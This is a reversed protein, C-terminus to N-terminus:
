NRPESDGASSLLSSRRSRPSRTSRRRLGVGLGTPSRRRPPWYSPPLRRPLAISCLMSPWGPAPHGHVRPAIVCSRLSGHLGFRIVIRNSLRGHLDAELDRRDGFQARPYALEDGAQNRSKECVALVLVHEEAVPREGLAETRQRRAADDRRVGAAASPDPHLRRQRARESAGVRIQAVERVRDCRQARTFREDQRHVVHRREQMGFVMREGSARDPSSDDGGKRRTGVGHDRPRVSAPGVQETRQRDRRLADVDDGTGRRLTQCSHAILRCERRDTQPVAEGRLEDKMDPRKFRALVQPPEYLRHSAHPPEAVGM